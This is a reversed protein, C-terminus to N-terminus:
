RRGTFVFPLVAKPSASFSCGSGSQSSGMHEEHTDTHGEGEVAVLTSGPFSALQSLRIPFSM